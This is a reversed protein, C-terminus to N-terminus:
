DQENIAERVRLCDLYAKYCIARAKEDKVGEKCESYFVFCESVELDGCSGCGLALILILINGFYTM